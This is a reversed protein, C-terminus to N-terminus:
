IWRSICTHGAGPLLHSWSFATFPNKKSILIWSTHVRLVKLPAFSPIKLFFTGKFFFPSSIQNCLKNFPHFKKFFNTFDVNPTYLTSPKLLFYNNLSKLFGQDRRNGVNYKLPGRPPDACLVRKQVDKLPAIPTNWYFLYRKKFFITNPQTVQKPHSIQSFGLSIM